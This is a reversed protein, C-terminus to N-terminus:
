DGVVTTAAIEDHVPRRSLWSLPLAALRLAAQVLSLRSGDLAVVRQRTILGGLTRGSTTWCAVHYGAAITAFATFRRRRALVLALSACVALDIGAASARSGLSAPKGPPNLEALRLLQLRVLAHHLRLQTQEYISRPLMPRYGDVTAKLETATSEITLSGGPSATLLGGTIPWTVSNTATRPPGFRHIAVPGLYLARDRLRIIGLTVTSISPMFASRLMGGSLPASTAVSDEVTVAGGHWSYM